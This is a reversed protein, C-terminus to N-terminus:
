QNDAEGPLCSITWGEFSPPDAAAIDPGLFRARFPLGPLVEQVREHVIQTMADLYLFYRDDDMGDGGIVTGIPLGAAQAADRGLSDWEPSERVYESIRSFQDSTLQRFEPYLVCREGADDGFEPSMVWGTTTRQEGDMLGAFPPISLLYDQYTVGAVLAGALM